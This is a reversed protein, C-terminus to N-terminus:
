GSLPFPNVVLNENSPVLLAFALSNGSGPAVARLWWTSTAGISVTAQFIGHSNSTIVAVTKWAGGTGIRRQITVDQQDSTADRGWIKAKGGSKLYAVFPFRFPTLLPKETANSLSSSNFYLGSQFPTNLPMDQLLFSTGLTAGSNFIQYLAEAMWRAELTMPTGHTNPPKSSWGFETVWFQVPQASTFAGLNEATQLLAKMKPLDGLEVGGAVRAPVFPSTVSYPHHAWVDLHTKAACNRSAPTTNAICLMQRMFTLPPTVFNTDSGSPTHKFPALEGAAVLNAANVAHVSDAVANVMARYVVPDQPYLNRNFNPENWVSFVHVAPGPSGDYRSAVATAFAGLANVKPTGGHYAGPNVAYGWSPAPGVIDLIPTLGATVAASVMADTASWHYYPSAPDTPDFGSAPLTTPAIPAWKVILRVYTAGAQSTMAAATTRQSGEFLPDQLATWLPPTPGTTAIVLARAEPHATRATAATAVVGAVAVFFLPLAIRRM